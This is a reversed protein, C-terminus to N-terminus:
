HNYSFQKNFYQKSYIPYGRLPCFFDDIRGNNSIRFFFPGPDNFKETLSTKNLMSYFPVKLDFLKDLVLLEHPNDYWTIIILKDLDYANDALLQFQERVCQLCSRSSFFFVLKDNIESQELKVSDKSGLLLLVLDQDVHEKEYLFSSLIMSSLNNTLQELSDTKKIQSILQIKVDRECNYFSFLLIFCLLGRSYRM